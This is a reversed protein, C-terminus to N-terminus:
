RDRYGPAPSQRAAGGPVEVHLGLEDTLMCRYLPSSEEHKPRLEYGLAASWFQAAQELDDTKCDIIFGALRSRHM